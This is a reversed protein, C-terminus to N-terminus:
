VVGNTSAVNKLRGTYGSWSAYSGAYTKVTFRKRAGKLSIHIHNTNEYIILQDFDPIIRPILERYYRVRDADPIALSFTLDAALGSKHASTSSGGVAANVQESRFASNISFDGAEVKLKDLEKAFRIINDQAVTSPTNDLQPTSAHPVFDAWVFSSGPYVADYIKAMFDPDYDLEFSSLDVPPASNFSQRSGPPSEPTPRPGTPTASQDAGLIAQSHKNITVVSGEIVATDSPSYVKRYMSLKQKDSRTLGQASTSRIRNLNPPLLFADGDEPVSVYAMTYTLPTDGANSADTAAPRYDGPYIPSNPVVKIVEADMVTPSESRAGQEYVNQVAVNLQTLGDMGFPVPPVFPDPEVMAPNLDGIRKLKLDDNAM